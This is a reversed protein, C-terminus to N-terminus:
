SPAIGLVYRMACELSYDCEDELGPMLAKDEERLQKMLEELTLRMGEAEISTTRNLRYLRAAFNSLDSQDMLDQEEGNLAWRYDPPVWPECPKYVIRERLELELAKRGKESFFKVKTKLAKRKLVVKEPKVKNFEDRLVNALTLYEGEPLKLEEAAALMKQLTDQTLNAM